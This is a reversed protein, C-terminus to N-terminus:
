AGIISVAGGKVQLVRKFICWVNGIMAQPTPDAMNFQLTISGSGLLISSVGDMEVAFEDRVKTFDYAVVNCCCNGNNNRGTYTYLGPAANVMAGQRGFAAHTIAYLEAEGQTPGNQPYKTGGITIQFNDLGLRPARTISYASAQAQETAIQPYYIVKELLQTPKSVTAGVSGSAVSTFSFPTYQAASYPLSWGAESLALQQMLNMYADDVTLEDMTISTNTVSINDTNQQAGKFVLATSITNQLYITIEIGGSGLLFAPLYSGMTNAFLGFVLNLPISVNVIDQASGTGPKDALYSTYRGSLAVESYGPNGFSQYNLKWSQMLNGYKYAYTDEDSGAAVKAYILRGVNYVDEAQIGGLKLVARDLLSSALDDVAAGSACSIKMQFNLYASNVDLFNSSSIRWVLTNTTSSTGGLVASNIGQPYWRQLARAKVVSSTRTEPIKLAPDIVEQLDLLAYPSAM